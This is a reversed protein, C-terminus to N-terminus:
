ASPYMCVARVFGTPYRPLFATLSVGNLVLLEWAILISTVSSSRGVGESFLMKQRYGALMSFTEWFLQQLPSNQCCRSIKLGTWTYTKSCYIHLCIFYKQCTGTISTLLAVSAKVLTPPCRLWFCPVVEACYGISLDPTWGPLFAVATISCLGVFDQSTHPFSQENWSLATRLFHWWLRLKLTIWALTVESATRGTQHGATVVSAASVRGAGSSGMISTKVVVCNLKLVALESTYWKPPSLWMWGEAVEAVCVLGKVRPWLLAAPHSVELSFSTKEAEPM